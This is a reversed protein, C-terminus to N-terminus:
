PAQELSGDQFSATVATGLQDARLGNHDTESFTYTGYVGEYGNEELYARIEDSDTSGVANAADVYIMLSDYGIAPIQLSAQVPDQGLVDHMLDIFEAFAAGQPADEGAPRLVAQAVGPSFVNSMQDVGVTEVVDPEAATSLTLTPIDIGLLSRASLTSVQDAGNAFTILGDPESDMLSSLQPTLDVTGTEFTQSV